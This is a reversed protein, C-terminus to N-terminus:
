LLLWASVRTNRSLATYFQFLVASDESETSLVSRPRPSFHLLSKCRQPKREDARSPKVELLSWSCQITHRPECALYWAAHRCAMGILTLKVADLNRAPRIPDPAPCRRSHVSDGSAAAATMAYESEMEKWRPRNKTMKIWTNNNKIENNNIEETQKTKGSTQIDPTQHQPQPEMRSSEKGM